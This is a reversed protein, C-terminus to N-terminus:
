KGMGLGVGLQEKINLWDVSSVEVKAQIAQLQELDKLDKTLDKKLHNISMVAENFADEMKKQWETETKKRTEYELVLKKAETVDEEAVLGNGLKEKLAELQKLERRHQLYDEESEDLEQEFKQENRYIELETEIQICEEEAKGLIKKLNLIRNELVQIENTLFKIFNEKSSFDAQVFLSNQM